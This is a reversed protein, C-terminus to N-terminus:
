RESRWARVYAATKVRAEHEDRGVRGLEHLEAEVHCVGAGREPEVATLSPIDIEYKM